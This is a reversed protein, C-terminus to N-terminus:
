LILHHREKVPCSDLYLSFLRHIRSRLWSHQIAIRSSQSANSTGLLYNHYIMGYVTHYQLKMRCNHGNVLKLQNYIPNYM